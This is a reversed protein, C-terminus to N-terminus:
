LRAPNEVAVVYDQRVKIGKLGAGSLHPPTWRKRDGGESIDGASSVDADPTWSRNLRM